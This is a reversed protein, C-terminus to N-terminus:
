RLTLKGVGRETLSGRQTEGGGGGSIKHRRQGHVNVAARVAEADPVDHRLRLDAARDCEDVVPINDGDVGHLVRDLEMHRRFLELAAACRPLRRWELDRLSCQVLVDLEDLVGAAPADGICSAQGMAETGGSSNAVEGERGM